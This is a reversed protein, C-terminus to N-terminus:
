LNGLTKSIKKAARKGSNYAGSVLASHGRGMAEGAFFLRDGVPAELVKRVGYHGPKVAAYAGMALPDNAWDTRFGKIFHKRADSGVLRILEEMAFDVTVTPDESSLDWGLQGGINGFLYDHGCPWAIFYCARAPMKNSVQYTVWNNEGLGLKAGDFMMPVKVLLGMPLAHVAELKAEPLTPSFKIAGAALVGTSVTILCAKASITGDITEVRVGDGSWDIHTVSTNLKVPLGEAKTAVVAGLGERVFYSPQDSEGYWDDLTSIQNFDVGYDMPGLWSQVAGAWPLNDPIVASAPVDQGKRAAKNMAKHIAKSNKAFDIYDQEDARSGDNRFLSTDANTHEVLNFGKSRAVKTYPNKDAGSVWSAGMDVPVGFSDSQTWARGGVRNAAELVVVSRGEKILRRAAGLGASGAGVVIVDPNSPIQDNLQLPSM